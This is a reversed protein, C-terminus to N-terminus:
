MGGSEAKRWARWENRVERGEDAGWCGSTAALDRRLFLM